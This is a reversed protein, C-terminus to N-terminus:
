LNAVLEAINILSNKQLHFQPNFAVAADFAKVVDISKQNYYICMKKNSLYQALYEQETQMPTPILIMKKQLHVLEMITTYGSRALVINSSCIAQQLSQGSLHNKITCNTHEIIDNSTPLGRVFLIKKNELHNLQFLLKNELLTRQPEPGSLLVCLDYIINTEVKNFRSLAGIYKVPIKPKKQPHSLEGAINNEDAFDPVWCTNFKNIFSYNIKQLINEIFGNGAKIILQHTIFISKIKKNFLGYRNDSIVVDITNTNIYDKLWKNEKYICYLIKPIQLIIKLIFIFKNNAYSINYGFLNIFRLDAFEQQLLKKQKPCCAVVM